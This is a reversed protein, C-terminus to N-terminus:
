LSYLRSVGSRWILAVDNSPPDRRIALWTLGLTGLATLMVILGGEPRRPAAKLSFFFLVVSPLCYFLVQTFFCGMRTQLNFVYPLGQQKSPVGLVRHYGVFLHLYSTLALLVAPGILLFAVFTMETDAFPLKIKATSSLLWIDAAGLTMLCFVSFTVLVLMTRHITQSTENHQQKWNERQEESVFDNAPEPAWWWCRPAKSKDFLRQFRSKSNM